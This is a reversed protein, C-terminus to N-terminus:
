RGPTFAVLETTTHETRITAPNPGSTTEVYDADRIESVVGKVEAAYRVTDRRTTKSRWFEDDDFQMIRYIAVADYTGAPVTVSARGQVQGSILIESKLETDPRYTNVVQRWSAREGIPFDYLKLSPSFRRPAEYKLSGAVLGGEADIQQFKETSGYANVYILRVTAVGANVATVQVDLKGPANRRLGDTVQYEWHDGVVLHPPPIAPGVPLPSACGFLFLAVLAPGSWSLFFLRPTLM